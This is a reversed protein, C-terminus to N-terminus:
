RRLKPCSRGSTVQELVRERVKVLTGEWSGQEKEWPWVTVYIYIQDKGGNRVSLEEFGRLKRPSLLM